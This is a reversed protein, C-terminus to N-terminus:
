AAGGATGGTRRLADGPMEVLMQSREDDTVCPTCLGAWRIFTARSSFLLATLSMVTKSCRTCERRVLQARRTM